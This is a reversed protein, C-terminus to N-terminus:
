YPHQRRSYSHGYQQYHSGQQHQQQYSRNSHHSQRSRAPMYPPPVPSILPTAQYQPDPEYLTDFFVDEQEQEKDEEQNFGQDRVNEASPSTQYDVPSTSQELESQQLAEEGEEM